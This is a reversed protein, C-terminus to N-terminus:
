PPTKKDPKRFILQSKAFTKPERASAALSGFCHKGSKHTLLQRSCRRKRAEVAPDARYQTPVLPYSVLCPPTLILILTLVGEPGASFRRRGVKRLSSPLFIFVPDACPKHEKAALRTKPERALLSRGCAPPPTTVEMLLVPVSTKLSIAKKKSRRTTDARYQTPVLPYSVLCPPTLILIM